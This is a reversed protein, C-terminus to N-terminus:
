RTRPESRDQVYKLAMERGLERVGKLLDKQDSLDKYASAEIKSTEVNVLRLTLNYVGGVQGVSGGLIMEVALSRGIEALFQNDNCMETRQFKQETLVKEMDARSALQFYKTEVLTSRLNESLTAAEAKTVCQADLDVVAINVPKWDPPPAPLSTERQGVLLAPPPVSVSAEKRASQVESTPATVRSEQRAKKSPASATEASQVPTALSMLRFTTLRNRATKWHNHFLNKLLVPPLLSFFVESGSVGVRLVQEPPRAYGKKEVTIVHTGSDFHRPSYEYPTVKRTDRGDVL